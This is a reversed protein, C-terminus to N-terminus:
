LPVRSWSSIDMLQSLFDLRSSSGRKGNPCRGLLQWSKLYVTFGKCTPKGISMCHGSHSHALVGDDRRLGYLPNGSEPNTYWTFDCVGVEHLPLPPSPLGGSHGAIFLILYGYLLM